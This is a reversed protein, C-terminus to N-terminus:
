RMFGEIKKRVYDSDTEMYRRELNPIVGEFTTNYDGQFGSVAIDDDADDDSDRSISGGIRVTYKKDGTGNLVLEMAEKSLQGVPIEMSFKNAKAVAELIRNYWTLHSTTSSWPMIAGEGLTLNKNPMVLDPDIELKTGLGHCTPCAGHPSNFSFMRPSIESISINCTPCAYKDSYIEEKKTEFDQIIITGEGHKIAIEVSDALRSRDPNPMDIEQGSPLVKKIPKFNKVVLRDVIIDISHKKNEDLEPVELISYANGDVRARVFGLKKIKEFVALHSGKKDRIIPAMVMIKADEKMDAIIEVIQSVSQRTISKGCKPCHPHGVKAFILRLYDYVETITGVTSRPNRPASKQDISIAPSLGDISDVDPKEMLQLFQRAYTSLSEVYRRQGEAYITDFALTSKGSGSLGTIVTLKNKPIEVSINKLNHLRAGKVTIKDIPM